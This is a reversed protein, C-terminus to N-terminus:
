DKEHADGSVTADSPPGSPTRAEFAGTVLLALFLAFALVPGVIQYREAATQWFAPTDDLIRGAADVSLHEARLAMWVGTATALFTHVVLLAGTGLALPRLKRRLTANPLVFVLALFLPLDLSIRYTDLRETKVFSRTQEIRYVARQQVPALTALWDFFLPNERLDNVAPVRLRPYLRTYGIFPGDRFVRLEPDVLALVARTPPAVLAAYGPM